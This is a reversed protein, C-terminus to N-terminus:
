PWRAALDDGRLNALADVLAVAFSGPGQSTRAATEGALKMLACATAAAQVGDPVCATFAAVLASLSCGTGTVQQLRADGGAIALTQRGDTIFDTAGTVAVVAGSAEALQRAAALAAESGVLSDVGRGGAAVGALAMIESANGRIARPRQALLEHCFATRWALVGVAVPDLTWPTGAQRASAVAVRMASAQEATLTGVNVLLAGAIAAFPGAEEPAVVMAPAAGVALLANANFATVVSNTLCHVLPQAARLRDLHPAALRGSFATVQNM